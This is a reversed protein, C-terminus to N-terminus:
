YDRKSKTRTRYHHQHCVIGLAVGSVTSDTYFELGRRSENLQAVPDTGLAAKLHNGRGSTQQLQRHRDGLAIEDFDFKLGMGTVYVTHGFHQIRQASARSADILRESKDRKLIVSVLMQAHHNLGNAVLGEGAQAGTL